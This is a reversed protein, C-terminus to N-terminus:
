RYRRLRTCVGRRLSAGTRAAQMADGGKDDSALKRLEREGLGAQVLAPRREVERGTSSKNEEAEGHHRAGVHSSV